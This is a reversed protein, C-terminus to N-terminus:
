RRHHPGADMFALNLDGGDAVGADYGGSFVPRPHMRAGPGQAGVSLAVLVSAAIALLVAAMPRSPAEGLAIGRAKLERTAATQLKGACSACASLHQEFSPLEDDGLRAEAFRKLDFVSVHANM